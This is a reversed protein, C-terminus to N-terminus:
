TNFVINLGGTDIRTKLVYSATEAPKALAADLVLSDADHPAVAGHFERYGSAKITVGWQRWMGTLASKDAILGVRYAGSADTTVTQPAFSGSAFTVQASAVPRRTAAEYVCGSIAANRAVDHADLRADAVRVTNALRAVQTGPGPVAPDFLGFNPTVYVDIEYDYSSGTQWGSQDLDELYVTVWVLQSEGPELYVTGPMPPIKFLASTSSGGPPTVTAAIQLTGYRTGNKVTVTRMLKTEHPYLVLLPAREYQLEFDTTRQATGSALVAHALRTSDLAPLAIPSFEAAKVASATSGRTTQACGLTAAPASSSELPTAPTSGQTASPTPSSAGPPACDSLVVAVCMAAALARAKGMSRVSASYEQPALPLGQATADAATAIKLARRTSV